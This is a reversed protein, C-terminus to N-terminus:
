VDLWEETGLSLMVGFSWHVIECDVVSTFSLCVKLFHEFTSVLLMEQVYTWRIYKEFHEKTLKSTCTSSEKLMLCGIFRAAKPSVMVGFSWYVVDRDIFHLFCAVLKLPFTWVELGVVDRSCINVSHIKSFAGEDGKKHLHLERKANIM